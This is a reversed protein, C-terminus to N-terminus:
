YKKWVLANLDQGKEGKTLKKVYKNFKKKSVKKKGVYYAVLPKKLQKVKGNKYAEYSIRQYAVEVYKKKSKDYKFYGTSYVGQHGTMPAYLVKNKRYYKEFNGQSMLTVMKVKGGIYKYVIESCYGYGPMTILEDVKDNDLDAFAYPLKQGPFTMYEKKDKKVQKMFAAHVKKTSPKAYCATDFVCLFLSLVLLTRLWFKKNM